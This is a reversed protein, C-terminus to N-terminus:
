GGFARWIALGVVFWLACSVLLAPVLLSYSEHSEGPEETPENDNAYGMCRRAGQGALM